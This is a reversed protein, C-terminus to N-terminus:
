PATGDERTLAARTGGAVLPIAALMYLLCYTTM